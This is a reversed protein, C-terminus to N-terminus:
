WRTHKQIIEQRDINDLVEGILKGIISMEAETMGRTTLAPTGLRGGSTIMPSNTDFPITNKNVTIGAKELLQKLRNLLHLNLKKFYISGMRMM